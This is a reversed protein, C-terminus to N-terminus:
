KSWGGMTANTVRALERLWIMQDDMNLHSFISVSYIMDFFGSEYTLPPSFKNTYAQVQPYNKQIYAVSTHDIDCAYYTPAPYTRTLHLLPRGVGCGFDLIRIKQELRVGERRACAAIPLSTRLGALIFPLSAPLVVQLLTRLRGVQFTRRLGLRARESVSLSGIPLGDLAVGGTFLFPTLLLALSKM